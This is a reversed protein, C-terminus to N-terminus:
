PRTERSFGAVAVCRASIGRVRLRVVNAAVSQKAASNAADDLRKAWVGIV